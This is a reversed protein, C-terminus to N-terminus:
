SKMLKFGYSQALFEPTLVRTLYTKWHFFNIEDKYNISLVYNYFDIFIAPMKKGFENINESLKIDKYEVTSKGKM